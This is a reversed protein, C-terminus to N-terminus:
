PQRLESWLFHLVDSTRLCLLEVEASRDFFDNTWRQWLEEM